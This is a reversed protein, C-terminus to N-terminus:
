KISGSYNKHKYGYLIENIASRMFTKFLPSKTDVFSYQSLKDIFINIDNNLINILSQLPISKDYNHLKILNVSINIDLKGAPRAEKFYYEAMVKGKNILNSIIEKSQNQPLIEIAYAYFDLSYYEHRENIKYKNIDDPPIYFLSVFLLSFILMTRIPLHNNVSSPKSGAVSIISLMRGISQYILLSITNIIEKLFGIFGICWFPILYIRYRSCPFAYLTIAIVMLITIVYINRINKEKSFFLYPIGLLYFVGPFIFYKSIYVTKFHIKDQLEYIPFSRFLELPSLLQRIKYILEKFWIEPYHRIFYLAIKYSYVPKYFLYNKEKIGYYNIGVYYLYDAQLQSSDKISVNYRKFNYNGSNAIWFNIPGNYSMFISRYNVVSFLIIAFLPISSVLIRKVNKISLGRYLITLWYIGIFLIFWARIIYCLALIIGCIFDIKASGEKIKLLYIFLLLLFLTPLEPLLLLTEHIIIPSLAFLVTAFCAFVKSKLIDVSIRYVLLCSSLYLLLYIYGTFTHVNDINFCKFKLLFYYYFILGPPECFGGKEKAQKFLDPNNAWSVYEGSDPIERRLYEPINHHYSIFCYLIVSLCFIETLIFIYDINKTFCRASEIIKKQM